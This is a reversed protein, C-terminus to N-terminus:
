IQKIERPPAPVPEIRDATITSNWGAGAINATTITAGTSVATISLPVPATHDTTNHAVDYGIGWAYLGLASYVVPRSVLAKMTAEKRLPLGEFVAQLGSVLGACSGARGARYVGRARAQLPLAPLAAPKGPARAPLGAWADLRAHGHGARGWLRVGSPAEYRRPAGLRVPRHRAM